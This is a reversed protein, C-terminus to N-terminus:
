ALTYCDVNKNSKRPFFAKCTMHISECLVGLRTDESFIDFYRRFCIHNSNKRKDDKTFINASSM